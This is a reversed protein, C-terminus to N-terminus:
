WSTRWCLRMSRVCFRSLVRRSARSRSCARASVSRSLASCSCRWSASDRRGHHRLINPPHHLVRACSPKNADAEQKPKHATTPSISENRIPQAPATLHAAHEPREHSPPKQTIGRSREKSCWFVRVLYSAMHLFGLIGKLDGIVKVDSEEVVSLLAGTELLNRLRKHIPVAFCYFNDPWSM